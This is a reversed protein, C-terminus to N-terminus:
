RSALGAITARELWARYVVVLPGDEGPRTMPYIVFVRDGYVPLRIGRVPLDTLLDGSATLTGEAVSALASDAVAGYIVPLTTRVMREFKDRRRTRYLPLDFHVEVSDGTRVVFVGDNLETRGAGIAPALSPLPREARVMVTSDRHLDGAQRVTGSGSERAPEVRANSAFETSDGRWGQLASAGAVGGIAIGAIGLGILGVRGLQRRRRARAALREERLCHLCVTTGPRQEHPCNEPVRHQM